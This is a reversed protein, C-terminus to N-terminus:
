RNRGVVIEDVVFEVSSRTQGDDTTWSNQRAHAEISVPMGKKLFAGIADSRNGFLVCPLFDVGDEYEGTSSNLTRNGVGIRFTLVHNPKLKPENAVFASFFAKNIAM